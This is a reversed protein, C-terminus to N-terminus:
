SIDIPQGNSGWLELTPPAVKFNVLLYPDSVYPENRLYLAVSRPSDEYGYIVAAAFGNWPTPLAIGALHTDKLWQIDEPENLLQAAM